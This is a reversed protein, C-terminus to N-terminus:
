RSYEGTGRYWYQTYPYPSYGSDYPHSHPDDDQDVFYPYAPNTNSHIGYRFPSEWLHIETMNLVPYAYEHEGSRRTELGLVVGALTVLTGPEYIAPDLEKSTKVLFRRGSDDLYLPEGWHSLRWEMVELISGANASEVTIVVGGVILHQDLFATPNESVMAFTTKEDVQERVEQSVPHACAGLLLATLFIFTQLFYTTRM